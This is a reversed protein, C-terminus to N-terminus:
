PHGRVQHNQDYHDCDGDAKNRNTESVNSIMFQDEQVDQILARIDQSRNISIEKEKDVFKSKPNDEKLSVADNRSENKTKDDSNINSSGEEEVSKDIPDELENQDHQELQNEQKTDQDNEAEEKNKEQKRKTKDSNNSLEGAVIKQDNQDDLADLKNQDKQDDLDNENGLDEQKDQDNELTEKKNVISQNDIKPSNTKEKLYQAIELHGNITAYDLALRNQGDKAHIQGGNEVLCKVIELNVRLFKDNKCISHLPTRGMINKANVFAGRSILFKVEELLGEQAAKHIPTDGIVNKSNIDAGKDLLCKISAINNTSKTIDNNINKFKTFPNGAWNFNNRYSSKNTAALHLPTHGHKNKANVDAGNEILFEM